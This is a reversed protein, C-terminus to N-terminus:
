LVSLEKELMQKHYMTKYLGNRELLEQHTGSERLIGQDLVAILDAKQVTSLRHSIMVSTKDKLESRLHNLIAEETKTDVASLSDDFILIEPNIILARAIATRQKQGGSLTIGREGVKTEYAQTFDEINAALQAKEAAEKVMATSYQAMGFGINESITDSFLFTEQGVYGILARLDTISWAHLAKGKILIEGEEPEFLAPILQVLTSKGSGTKGVIALQQGPMVKFSINRIAWQKSEPYRFGVNRFEIIPVDKSASASDSEKSPSNKLAHLSEEPYQLVDDIRDWSAMSQQYLNLTYGLSAVPWTLYAVYVIFEAINGVSVQQAMVMEGGKWLVLIVSMGIFLSLMPIFLSEVLDLRLKKKRYVDSEEEFVQQEYAERGYAKILRIASFAEQVRGALSAYQEQIKKSQRNIYGSMYYALFSLIPLPIMAWLTLPTSVWFMMILIIGMRTLTNAAYMVAPGYYMRVKNVDESTRVYIDGIRHLVFFRKPLDLLKQFLDNRIDREIWRSAVIITQRTAFLLLGYLGAAALLLLANKAILWSIESGFLAQVISVSGASADSNSEVIATVEDITKRVFYPIWVLSSNAGLLLLCGIVITRKYPKFYANLRKTTSTSM